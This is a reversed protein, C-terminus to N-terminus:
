KKEIDLNKFAGEGGGAKDAEVQYVQVRGQLDHQGV